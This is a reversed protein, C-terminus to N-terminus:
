EEGEEVTWEGRRALRDYDSFIKVSFVRPKSLYPHDANAFMDILRTLGALATEAVTMTPVPQKDDDKFDLPQGNKEGDAAASTSM